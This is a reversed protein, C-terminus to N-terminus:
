KAQGTFEPVKTTMSVPKPHDKAREAAQKMARDFKYLRNSEFKQVHVKKKM